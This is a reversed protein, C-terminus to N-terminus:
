VIFESNEEANGERLNSQYSKAWLVYLYPLGTSVFRFPLLCVSWLM